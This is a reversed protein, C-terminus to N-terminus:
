LVLKALQQWLEARLTGRLRDTEGLDAQIWTCVNKYLQKRDAFMDATLKMTVVTLQNPGSVSNLQLARKAVKAVLRDSNAWSEVYQTVAKIIYVSLPPKAALIYLVSNRITHSINLLSRLYSRYFTGLERTCDVRVTGKGDLKMVGWLSCGYLLVSRVYAEFFVIRTSRDKWGLSILKSQLVTWAQNAKVLRTEVMTAM